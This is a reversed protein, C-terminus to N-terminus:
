ARLLSRHVPKVCLFRSLIASSTGLPYSPLVRLGHAAAASSKAVRAHGGHRWPCRRQTARGRGPHFRIAGFACKCGPTDGGSCDGIGSTDPTRCRRREELADISRNRVYSDAWFRQPRAVHTAQRSGCAARRPGRARPSEIPAERGGSVGGRHRGVAGLFSGQRASPASVDPHIREVVTGSEHLTRTREVYGVSDAASSPATACM